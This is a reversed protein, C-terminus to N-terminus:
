SNTCGDAPIHGELREEGMRPSPHVPISNPEPPETEMSLWHSNAERTAAVLRSLTSYRNGLFQRASRLVRFDEFYCLNCHRHASSLLVLEPAGRRFKSLDSRTDTAVWVNRGALPALRQRLQTITANLTPWCAARDKNGCAIAFDGRRWHLGLDVGAAPPPGIPPLLAAATTPYNLAPPFHMHQLQALVLVPQEALGALYDVLPDFAAPSKFPRWRLSLRLTPWRRHLLLVFNETATGFARWGRWRGWSHVAWHRVPVPQDSSLDALFVAGDALIASFDLYRRWEDALPCKRGAGGDEEEHQSRMLPPIILRRGLVRALQWGRLIGIIQNSIGEYPLVLLYERRDEGAPSIPSQCRPPMRVHHHQDLEEEAIRGAWLMVVVVVGIGLAVGLWRALRRWGCAESQSMAPPACPSVMM